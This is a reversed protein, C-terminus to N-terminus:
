VRAIGSPLSYMEYAFEEVHKPDYEVGIYDIELCFDGGHRDQVSIGFSTVRNLPLACQEDQIRGKSSFFFKSFPIKAIQWYPGGRTYLQYNYMDNWMTDFVGRTAINLLYTRGDGRVKMILTNYSTWDLYSERKFSKRANKTKINCYGARTIKGSKPVKLDVRGSFVGNGYQNLELSCHSFGENHDSDCTTIWNDLSQPQRFRWAVDTQGPTAAIMIADGELTEKVEQCWLKVEKKLEALGVRMRDKFPPLPGQYGGRNDYEHFTFRKATICVSGPKLQRLLMCRGLLSSM